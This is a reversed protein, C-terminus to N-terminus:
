RAKRSTGTALQTSLPVVRPSLIRATPWFGAAASESPTLTIFIRYRITVM